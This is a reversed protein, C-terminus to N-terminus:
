NIFMHEDKVSPVMIYVICSNMLCTWHEGRNKPIKIYVMGVM